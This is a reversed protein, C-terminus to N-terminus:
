ISVITISSGSHSSNTSVKDNDTWGNELHDKVIRVAHVGPGPLQHQKTVVRTVNGSENYFYWTTEFLFPM